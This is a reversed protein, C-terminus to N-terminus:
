IEEIEVPVKSGPSSPSLVALYHVYLGPIATSTVFLSVKFYYSSGVALPVTLLLIDVRLMYM